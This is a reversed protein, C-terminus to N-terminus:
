INKNNIIKKANNILLDKIEDETYYKKLKKEIKYFYDYNYSKHHIDSSLLDIYKRKFLKKITKKVDKGYMGFISGINSQFIVGLSKYEDLINIDKIVTEYREPHALVVKYGQSILGSIIGLSNNFEGSMPLELLIYKSNNIPYANKGIEKSIQSDIFIENGIYLKLNINEEKLKKEILKLKEKKEKITNQYKSDLIYHPTFVIETFGADQMNKLISISEDLSRSGDDINNIIHSHIDVM